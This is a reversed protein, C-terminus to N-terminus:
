KINKSDNSYKDLAEQMSIYEIDNRTVYRDGKHIEYDRKSGEKTYGSIILQDGEILCDMAPMCRYLSEKSGKENKSLSTLLPSKKVISNYKINRKVDYLADIMNSSSVDMVSKSHNVIEEIIDTIKLHYGSGSEILSRIRIELLEIIADLDEKLIIEDSENQFDKIKDKIYGIYNSIYEEM